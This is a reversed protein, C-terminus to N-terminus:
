AGILGGVRLSGAGGDGYVSIGGGGPVFEYLMEGPELYISKNAPGAEGGVVRYFCPGTTRLRVHKGAFSKDVVTAENASFPIVTEQYTTAIQPKDGPRM